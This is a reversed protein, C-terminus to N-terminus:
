LDPHSLLYIRALIAEKWDVVWRWAVLCGWVRSPLHATPATLNCDIDKYNLWKKAQKWGIKECFDSWNQQYNKQPDKETLLLSQYIQKQISFGLHCNSYKVWM